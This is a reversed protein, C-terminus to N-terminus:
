PSFGQVTSPMLNTGPQWIPSLVKDGTHAGEERMDQAQRHSQQDQAHGEATHGDLIGIHKPQCSLQCCANANTQQLPLLPPQALPLLVLCSNLVEGRTFRM